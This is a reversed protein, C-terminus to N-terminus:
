VSDRPSPSTYLLCDRFQDIQNDLIQTFTSLFPIPLHNAFDTLRNGGIVLEKGLGIVSGVTAMVSSALLNFAGGLVKGAITALVGLGTYSKKTNKTLLEQAKSAPNNSGGGSNGQRNQKDFASNGANLVKLIEMLTRESAANEATVQGIGPIDIKVVAM